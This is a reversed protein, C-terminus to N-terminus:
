RSAVLRLFSSFFKVLRSSKTRFGLGEFLIM